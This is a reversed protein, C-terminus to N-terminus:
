CMASPAHRSIFRRVRQGTDSSKLSDSQVGPSTQAAFEQLQTGGGIKRPEEADSMQQPMSTTPVIALQLHVDSIATAIANSSAARRVLRNERTTFVTSLAQPQLHHLTVLLACPRCTLRLRKLQTSMTQVVTHLSFSSESDSSCSVLLWRSDMSIDAALAEFRAIRKTTDFSCCRCAPNVASCQDFTSEISDLPFTSNAFDLPFHLFNCIHM